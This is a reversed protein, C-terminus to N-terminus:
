YQPFDLIMEIGAGVKKIGKDKVRSADQPSLSGKYSDTAINIKM